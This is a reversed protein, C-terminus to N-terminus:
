SSVNETRFDKFENSTHGRRELAPRRLRHIVIPHLDSARERVCVCKEGGGWREKESVWAGEREIEM